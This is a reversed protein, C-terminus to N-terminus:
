IRITGRQCSCDLLILIGFPITLIRVESRLKLREL